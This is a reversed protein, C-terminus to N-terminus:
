FRCFECLCFSWKKVLWFFFYIFMLIWENFNVSNFVVIVLTVKYQLSYMVPGFETSLAMSLFRCALTTKTSYLLLAFLFPSWKGPRDDMDDDTGATKTSVDDEQLWRVLQKNSIAPAANAQLNWVSNCNSRGTRFAVCRPLPQIFNVWFTRGTSGFRILM